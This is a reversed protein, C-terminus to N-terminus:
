EAEPLDLTFVSGRGPESELRVAGGHATALHRVMALGVGPGKVNGERARRGRVFKEFVREQEERPIGPGRDAVMISVRGSGREWRATVPSDGDSYKLANELLNRLAVVLAEGDGDVALDIAGDLVVRESGEAEAVARRVVEGVDLREFRFKQAGAEMKGFDLLTEVLRQLRRAESSLVQYYKRRREESPVQGMELMEALQRVTTLPSRFEHSVSAVFDAQLRAAAEERRMARAMFYVTGWLFLIVAGLMGLLLRPGAGAMPSEAWVRITWPNSGEGLVRVVGPGADGIGFGYGAPVFRRALADADLAAGAGNARWITVVGNVLRVGPTGWAAELAEALRWSDPKGREGARERYFEAAGRALVWRGGDVGEALRQYLGQGDLGALEAPVGGAAVDGLRELERYAAMAGAGDGMKRLVRGLRLLAEGNLGMGRYLAAARGLDGGFEVAEAAAIARDVPSAVGVVPVFPIAGRPTVTVQGDRLVVVVAGEIAEGRSLREGAEALRARIGAAATDAANDLRERELNRWGFWVLTITVVTSTALLAALVPNRLRM